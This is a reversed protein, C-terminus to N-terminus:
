PQTIAADYVAKAIRAIVSEDIMDDARANTVFIALALRQGNPLTILSRGKIRTM